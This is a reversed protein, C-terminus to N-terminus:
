MQSEETILLFLIFCFDFISRYKGTYRDRCLDRGYGSYNKEIVIVGTYLFATNDNQLKSLQMKYLAM